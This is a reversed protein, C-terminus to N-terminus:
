CISLVIKGMARGESMTAFAEAYRELPFTQTVLPKLAGKGYMDFLEENNRRNTDPERKAWVGYFVGLIGNNKLLVLNLPISPIPGAAFGVVLFRGNWGTARLAAESYDGGVPDLVVDAGAGGTLRKIEDKLSQERYNIGHVAGAELAIDLKERSSAAAIVTAGMATGLDVAARGVGGSAGLVVLYEGRKLRGCQKLSYYATGYAVMFSAAVDLPMSDPVAVLNEAACLRQEAFAGSVGTAMVRDGVRFEEVGEGVALVVGASEGGPVFPLDPRIQYRGAVTLTDPFNLSAAQTGLLVEGANPTPAPIEELALKEVSGFERCVLAKM